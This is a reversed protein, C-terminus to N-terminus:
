LGLNFMVAIPDSCIAFVHKSFILRSIRLLTHFGACRHSAGQQFSWVTVGSLLVLHGYRERSAPTRAEVRFFGEARWCACVTRSHDARVVLLRFNHEAGCAAEHQSFHRGRLTIVLGLDGM